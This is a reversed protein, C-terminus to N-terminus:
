EEIEGAGLGYDSTIEVDEVTVTGDAEVSADVRIQLAIHGDEYDVIAAGDENWAINTVFFTGGLVAPEPSLESIHAHLYEELARREEEDTFSISGGPVITIPIRVEDDHEPLGSPNDKMIVLVADTRTDVPVTLTKEFDVFDTTMWNDATMFFTNLLVEGSEDEVKMPLVAEFFWTGRAAGRVTFVPAVEAGVAPADIRVDPHPSAEGPETPRDPKSPAFSCGALLLTICLCASTRRTRFM